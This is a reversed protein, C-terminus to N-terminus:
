LNHGQVTGPNIQHVKIMHEKLSPQKPTTFECLDCKLIFGEHVIKIHRKLDAKYSGVYQCLDCPWRIGQHVKEVHMKLNYHSRGKYDCGVHDCVFKSAGGESHKLKHRKLAPLSSCKVECQDCRFQVESKRHQALLMHSPFFQGCHDCFPKEQDINHDKCHLVYDERRKFVSGCDSCEFRSHANYMHKTLRIRSKAIHSCNPCPHAALKHTEVHRSVNSLTLGTYSCKPCHLSSGKKHVRAVHSLLPIVRRFRLKCDPCTASSIDDQWIGHKKLHRGFKLKSKVSFMMDCWPCKRYKLEGNIHDLYYVKKNTRFDCRHCSYEQGNEDQSENGLLKEELVEKDELSNAEEEQKVPLTQKHKKNDHSQLNELNTTHYRCRPKPCLYHLVSPNEREIVYKVAKTVHNKQIHTKMSHIRNTMYDCTECAFKGKEHRNKKHTILSRKHPSSFDCDECSFQKPRELKVLFDADQIDDDGDPMPDPFDVDGGVEESTEDNLNQQIQFDSFDVDVETTLDEVEEKMEIEEHIRFEMRDSIIKEIQSFEKIAADFTVIANELAGCIIAMCDKIQNNHLEMALDTFEQAKLVSQRADQISSKIQTYPKFEDDKREESEDKVTVHSDSDDKLEGAEEGGDSSVM